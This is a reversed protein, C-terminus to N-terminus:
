KAETAVAETAESADESALYHLETPHALPRLKM